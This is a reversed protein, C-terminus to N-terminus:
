EGVGLAKLAAKASGRSVPIVRGDELKFSIAGSESRAILAIAGSRVFASRSARVFGAAELRPALAVMTQRDMFSRAPTHLLVYDRAAEVWTVDSFPVWARGRGSPVLLGDEGGARARATLTRARVRRWARTLAERLRDLRFPKLVYDAAHLDFADLAYSDHATVFIVEPGAEGLATAVEVGTGAPMEVDLLVVDPRLDEVLEAAEVGSRAVGVVEVATLDALAMQMRRLALDEDDALV